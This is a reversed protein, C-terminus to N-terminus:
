LITYVFCSRIGFRHIKRVGERRAM